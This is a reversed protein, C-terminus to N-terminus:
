KVIVKKGNVIYLGKAPQSIRQGNLNYVVTRTENSKSEVEQIGTTGTMDFAIYERSQTSVSHPLYVRGAGLRGGTWKYFGAVGNKKALVFVESSTTSGTTNEDSVKLLNVAPMEPDESLAELTYSGEDGHVVYPVDTKINSVEALKAKGDTVETVVYAKLGEPISVNAKTVLSAWGTSGINVTITGTEEYRYLCPLSGTTSSSAYTNFTPMPISTSGLSIDSSFRLVNLADDGTTSFTITVTNDSGVEITCKAVNGDKEADEKSGVMLGKNGGLLSAIDYDGSSSSSSSSSSPVTYLYNDGAKLYWESNGGEVAELTIEQVGDPLTSIANDEDITVETGSMGGGISGKTSSMAYSKDSGSGVLLLRDGDALPAASGTTVLRYIGDLSQATVDRSNVTLKFSREMTYSGNTVTVPVQVTVTCEGVKNATLINDSITAIDTESLTITATGATGNIENSNISYLDSTSKSTTTYMTIDETQLVRIQKTIYNDADMQPTKTSTSTSSYSPTSSAYSLPGVVTVIDGVAIDDKTLDAFELGRGTSIKLEKTADGTTGDDSIYYTLTGETSNNTVGPISTGGSYSGSNSGIKSVVGKVFYNIGGATNDGQVYSIAESPKFPKNMGGEANSQDVRLTYSATTKDYTDDGAFTATITATGRKILTIEGTTADVAAVYENSSSYTVDKDAPEVTAVPSTFASTNDLDAEYNSKEFTIVVDDKTSVVKKFFQIVTGKIDDDISTKTKWSKLIKLISYVGVYRNESQSDGSNTTIHLFDAHNNAEDKVLDFQNNTDTGVRLGADDATAYLYNTVNSGETVPVGFKYYRHSADTNDITLVWQLNDDIDDDLKDKSDNLKVSTASPSKGEEPNNTIAVLTTTDVIVVVDGTQLKAPDTKVWKTTEEARANMVVGVLLACTLLFASKLNKM